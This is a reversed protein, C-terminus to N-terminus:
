IMRLNSISHEHEHCHEIGDGNPEGQRWNTKPPLWKVCHIPVWAFNRYSCDRKGATWYLKSSNILKIINFNVELIVLNLKLNVTTINGNLFFLKIINFINPICIFTLLNSSLMIQTDKKSSFTMFINYKNFPSYALFCITLM